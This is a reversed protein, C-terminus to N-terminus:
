HGSNEYQEVYYAISNEMDKDMFEAGYVFNVLQAPSNEDEDDMIFVIDSTLPNISGISVGEYLSYTKKASKFIYGDETNLLGYEKNM